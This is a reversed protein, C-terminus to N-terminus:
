EDKYHTFKHKLARMSTIIYHYIFNTTQYFQEHNTPFARSDNYTLSVLPHIWTYMIIRWNHFSMWELRIHGVSFAFYM